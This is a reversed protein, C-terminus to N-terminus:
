KVVVTVQEQFVGDVGSSDVCCCNSTLAAAPLCSQQICPKGVRCCLGCVLGCVCVLYGCHHKDLYGYLLSSNIASCTDLVSVLQRRYVRSSMTWTWVGHLLDKSGTGTGTGTPSRAGTFVKRHLMYTGAADHQLWGLHALGHVRCNAEHLHNPCLSYVWVGTICQLHLRTYVPRVRLTQTLVSLDAQDTQLGM